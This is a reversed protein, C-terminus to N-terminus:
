GKSPQASGEALMRHGFLRWSESAEEHFLKAALVTETRGQGMAYEVATAWAEVEQGPLMQDAAVLLRSQAGYLKELSTGVRGVIPVGHELARMAIGSQYFRKYPIVITDSSVILEELEDEPVFRADVHWGEVPPWGRGVIDLDCKPGLRGALSKLLDIDRDAKYQGLVRVRPRKGSQGGFAPDQAAGAPPLMPHPVQALGDTLGVADMAQAAEDSHVLTGPRNKIRRVLGAVLPSSGVSRVLPQPDHYVIAGSNGCLVKMMLLDLFGM